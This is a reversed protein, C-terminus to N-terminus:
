QLALDNLPIAASVLGLYQQRQSANMLEASALVLERTSALCALNVNRRAEVFEAFEIFNVQGVTRRTNEFVILEQQLQAVQIALARMRPASAQHLAKIQQLQSDSMKLESKMWALQGDLTNTDAPQRINFYLAHSSLGALLGLLVIILTRKM